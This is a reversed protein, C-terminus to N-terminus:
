CFTLTCKSGIGRGFEDVARTLEDPMFAKFPLWEYKMKYWLFEFWNLEPSYPRLFYLRKGNEELLDLFTATEQYHSLHM